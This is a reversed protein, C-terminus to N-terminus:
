NPTQDIEQLKKYSIGLIFSVTMTIEYFCLYYILLEFCFIFKNMKGAIFHFSIYVSSKEHRFSIENRTFTMEPRM